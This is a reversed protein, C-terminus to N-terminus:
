LELLKWQVEMTLNSWNTKIRFWCRRRQYTYWSNETISCCLKYLDSSKVFYNNNKQNVSELVYM